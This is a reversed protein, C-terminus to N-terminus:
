LNNFVNPIILCCIVCNYAYLPLQCAISDFGPYKRIRSNFADVSVSKKIDEPISNWLKSGCVTFNKDGFKTNM